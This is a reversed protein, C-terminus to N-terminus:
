LINVSDSIKLGFESEFFDKFSIESILLLANNCNPLIDGRWYVNLQSDNKYLTDNHRDAYWRNGKLYLCKQRGDNQKTMKDVTMNNVTMQNVTM